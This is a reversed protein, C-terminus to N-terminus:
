IDVLALAIDYGGGEISHQPPDFTKQYAIALKKEGGGRLILADSYGAGGKQIIEGFDWTAGGDTSTQLTYNDRGGWYKTAPSDALSGPHGWYMINTDLDSVLAHACEATVNQIEPQRDKLYWIEAWTKGGDDSRAFARNESRNTWPEVTGAELRMTMLLSGNKMEAIQDETTGAPLLEGVSWSTAQDDSYLIFSRMYDPLNHDEGVAGCDFRRATVLRGAFPGTSIEIGHNLGGGAFHPGLSGNVINILKPETWTKGDDHSQIVGNLCGSLEKHTLQKLDAAWTPSPEPARATAQSSSTKQPPPKWFPPDVVMTLIGTSTSYVIQGDYTLTQKDSWTRGNDHSRTMSFNVHQHNSGPIVGSKCLGFLLTANTNTQVLAPAWWSQCQHDNADKNGPLPVTTFTAYALTICVTSLLLIKPM